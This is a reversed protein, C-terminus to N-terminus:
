CITLGWGENYNEASSTEKSNLNRKSCTKKVRRRCMDIYVSQYTLFVNTINECLNCNTFLLKKQNLYRESEPSQTIIIIIIIIIILKGHTPLVVRYKEWAKRSAQVWEACWWGISIECAFNQEHRRTLQSSSVCSRQM